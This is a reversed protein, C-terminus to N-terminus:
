ARRAIRWATWLQRLPHVRRPLSVDYRAEALSDLLLEHLGALVLGHAQVPREAPALTARAEALAARAQAALPELVVAANPPTVGALAEPGLGAADLRERPVRLSGDVADQRANALVEVLGLGRGLRAGFQELGASRTEALVQAALQQLAGHSRYLLAHLEADTGPAFGALRLDAAALREHLLAYDPASGASAHLAKSAPHEPRGARLRDIEVRWWGVKTHAVAHELRPSSAALLEGEIAYLATLADRREPRSFLLAYARPTAPAAAQAAYDPPLPM